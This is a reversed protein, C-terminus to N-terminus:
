RFGKSELFQVSIDTKRLGQAVGWSHRERGVPRLPSVAM